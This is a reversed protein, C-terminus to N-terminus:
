LSFHFNYVYTILIVINICLKSQASIPDILHIASTVRNVVCLPSIGGLQNTLKKSLCVVSDKSIPVIEVSNFM